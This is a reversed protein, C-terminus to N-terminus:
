HFPPVGPHAAAMRAAVAEFPAAGTLADAVDVGTLAGFKFGHGSCASVAVVAGERHLVFAHEPALTYYNAQGWRITFRDIGRFRGRYSALVARMEAATIRRDHDVDDTRGDGDGLKAPLGMVPAM